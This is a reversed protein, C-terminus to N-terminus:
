VIYTIVVKIKSLIVTSKDFTASFNLNINGSAVVLNYLRNSPTDTNEFFYQSNFDPVTGSVSIINEASVGHPAQGRTALSNFDFDTGYIVKQRIERGDDLFMGAAGGEGGGPSTPAEELYSIRAELETVVGALATDTVKNEELESKTLADADSNDQLAQMAAEIAATNDRTDKDIETVELTVDRSNSKAFLEGDNELHIQSGLYSSVLQTTGLKFHVLETRSNSAVLCSGFGISTWTSSNISINNM